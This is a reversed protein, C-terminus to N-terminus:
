DQNSRDRCYQQAEDRLTRLCEEFRPIQEPSLPERTHRVSSKLAYTAWSEATKLGAPTLRILSARRDEPDHERTVVGIEECEDVLRTISSPKTSLAASLTSPRLQHGESRALRILLDVIESRLPTVPGVDLEFAAQIALYAEKLLGLTDWRSGAFVDEM